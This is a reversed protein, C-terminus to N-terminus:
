SGAANANNYWRTDLVDGNGTSALMEWLTHDFFLTLPGNTNKLLTRRDIWGLISKPEKIPPVFPKDPGYGLVNNPLNAGYRQWFREEYKEKSLTTKSM